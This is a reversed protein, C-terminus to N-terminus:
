FLHSIKKKFLILSKAYNRKTEGHVHNTTECPEIHNGLTRLNWMTRCQKVYNPRMTAEGELLRTENRKEIAAKLAFDNLSYKIAKSREFQKKEVHFFIFM